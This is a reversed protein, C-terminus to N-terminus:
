RVRVIKKDKIQYVMNCQDALAMHHTVLLVTKNEISFISDMVEKETENDLNATAEDLILLSANKYLPRALAIRERQGGSITTGNEGILTDLGQPM